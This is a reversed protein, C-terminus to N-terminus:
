AQVAGENSASAVKDIWSALDVDRQTIGGASHTTLRFTIDRYGTISVDPHHNRRDAEPAVRNLLAIADAWDRRRYTRALTDGERSWDPLGQLSTKIAKEDLLAMPWIM